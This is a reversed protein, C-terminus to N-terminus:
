LPVDRVPMPRSEHELEVDRLPSTSLLVHLSPQRTSPMLAAFKEASVVVVADQGRVTVHQPGVSRALRVVESFRAKADELKWARSRDRQVPRAKAKRRQPARSVSAEMQGSQDSLIARSLGETWDSAGV